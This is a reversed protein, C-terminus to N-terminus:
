KTGIVEMLPKDLALNTADEVSLNHSSPDNKVTALCSTHPRGALRKRDSQPAATLIRWMYVFIDFYEFTMENNDDLVMALVAMM